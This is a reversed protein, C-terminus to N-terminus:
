SFSGKRSVVRRLLVIRLAVIGVHNAAYIAFKQAGIYWIYAIPIEIHLRSDQYVGHGLVQGACRAM